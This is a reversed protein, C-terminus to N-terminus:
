TRTHATATGVASLADILDFPDDGAGDVVARLLEVPVLIPLRLSVVATREISGTVRGEEVSKLADSVPVARAVWGGPELERRMVTVEEAPPPSPGTLLVLPTAVAALVADIAPATTLLPEDEEGFVMATPAM